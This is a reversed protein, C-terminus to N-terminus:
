GALRADHGLRRVAFAHPGRSRHRGLESWWEEWQTEPAVITGCAGPARMHAVAETLRHLPSFVLHTEGEWSVTFADTWVAATSYHGGDRLSPHFEPGM